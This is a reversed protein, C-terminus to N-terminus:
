IDLRSIAVKECAMLKVTRQGAHRLVRMSSTELWALAMLTVFMTISYGICNVVAGNANHMATPWFDLTAELITVKLGLWNRYRSNRNHQSQSMTQFTYEINLITMMAGSAPEPVPPQGLLFTGVTRTQMCM